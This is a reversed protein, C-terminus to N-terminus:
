AAEKMPPDTWDVGAVNIGIRAAAATFVQQYQTGTPTSGIPLVAFSDDDGLWELYEPPPEGQLHTEERPPRGPEAHTGNVDVRRLCVGQHILLVTPQAQRFGPRVVMELFLDAEAFEEAAVDLTARLSGNIVQWDTSGYASALIKKDVLSHVRPPHNM